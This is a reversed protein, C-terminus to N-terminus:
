TTLLQILTCVFFGPAINVYTQNGPAAHSKEELTLKWRLSESPSYLGKHATVHILM